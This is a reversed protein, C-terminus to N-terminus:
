KVSNKIELYKNYKRELRLGESNAYLFDGLLIADQGNYRIMHVSSKGQDYIKRPTIGTLTYIYEGLSQLYNFQKCVFSIRLYNKQIFVSGDGDMFGRVFSPNSMYPLWVEEGTKRAKFGLHLLDEEFYAVRFLIQSHERGDKRKINTITTPLNFVEKILHIIYEDTKKVCIGLRNKQVWGDAFLYGLCYLEEKSLDNRYVLDTPLKKFQNKMSLSKKCYKCLYRQNGKLDKGNKIYSDFGVCLCYRYGM